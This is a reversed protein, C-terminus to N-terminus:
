IKLHNEFTIISKTELHLNSQNLDNIYSTVRKIDVRQVNQYRDVITKSTNLYM